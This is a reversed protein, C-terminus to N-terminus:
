SPLDTSQDRGDEIGMIGKLLAEFGTRTYTALLKALKAISEPDSARSVLGLQILARGTVPAVEKHLFEHLREFVRPDEFRGDDKVELLDSSSGKWACLKCTIERESVIYYDVDQPYGCKPCVVM